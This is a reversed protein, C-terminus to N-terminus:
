ELDSNMKCPEMSTLAPSTPVAAKGPAGEAERRELKLLTLGARNCLSGSDM